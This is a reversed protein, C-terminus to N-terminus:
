AIMSYTLEIDADGDPPTTITRRVPSWTIGATDTNATDSKDQTFSM